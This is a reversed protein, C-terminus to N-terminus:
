LLHVDQEVEDDSVNGADTAELDDMGDQLAFAVRLHQGAQAVIAALVTDLGDGPAELSVVALLM